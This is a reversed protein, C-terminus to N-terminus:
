PMIATAEKKAVIAIGPFLLSGCHYIDKNGFKHLEYWQPKIAQWGYGSLLGDNDFHLWLIGYKLKM